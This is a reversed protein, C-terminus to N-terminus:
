KKRYISIELESQAIIRNCNKRVLELDDFEIAAVLNDLTTWFEDM